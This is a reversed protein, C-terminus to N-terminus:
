MMSPYWTEWSGPCDEVVSGVVPRVKFMRSTGCSFDECLDEDLDEDLDDEDEFCEESLSLRDELCWEEDELSLCEEEEDLRSDRRSLKLKLTSM